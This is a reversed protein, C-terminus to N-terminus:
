GPVILPAAFRPEVETPGQAAVAPGLEGELLALADAAIRQIEAEEGARETWLRVSAERFAQTLRGDGDFAAGLFDGLRDAPLPQFDPALGVFARAMATSWLAGLRVRALGAEGWAEVVMRAAAEVELGAAAFAKGQAEIRDLATNARELDELTAFARLRPPAAPGDLGGHYRPRRRLLAELAEGLPMDPLPATAGPLRLPLEKVLRQARWQLELTRTFGVQFLFKPATGALLGSARVPDDGGTRDALGLAITDRVATAHERVADVDTVDVQDAVLAANLVAVLQLQMADRADDPLLGLARDLLSGRELAALFFGPPSDPAGGQPPPPTSLDVRAYLSVAEELSPFGMDALRANRWRLATETLESELEWRVAYLMRAARFADQAYLEDILRRTAAYDAGEEDYILLFRGEPTREVTGTFEEDPEEGDEELDWIRVLGRLLLEVVEIDLAGLKAQFAQDDDGRALRLWMLLEHPQFEYGQWSDLDVFTRFQEPSALQVLPLADTKGIEQIAWYLDEAPLSRVLAGPDSSDLIQDLKKRGSARALAAREARLWQRTLTNSDSPM